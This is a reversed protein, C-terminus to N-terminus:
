TGVYINSSTSAIGGTAAGGFSSFMYKLNDDSFRFGAGVFANANRKSVFDDAGFTLYLNRMFYMRNIWKLHPRRDNIRNWGTMEFAEFSTYWRVNENQLPIDFDVGVGATGEMMGVRLAIRDFIKGFQLGLRWRYRVRVETYKDYVYKLKEGDTLDLNAICVERGEEDDEKCSTPEAYKHRTEYRDIYGRESAAIQAMYFYDESPHIRIDFFGKADEYKYDEARRYMTEFHSDMIIELMDTRSFYNRVGGMAAKLDNYTEEENILKGILGKGGDIKEAVSNLSKFGDRAQASADAFMEATTDLRSAMRSFDRDIVDSIKEVSAQFSPLVDTDLRDTLKRFNQGIELFASVNEENQVFTRELVGGFSAMREATTDLNRVISELHQRGEQGGIAGKISDTVSEINVAIKKFQSLIENITVPEVSPEKLTEGSQLRAFLPDGPVIEIYKPDLLGDQKIVAYSNNYLSYDKHVMVNAVAQREGDCASLEVSEVWGVKVGAIKVEAKRSLGSVDKFYMAYNNYRGRDFRFAGIRFGMYFFIALAALVFIGVRTEINEQM